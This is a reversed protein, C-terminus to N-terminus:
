RGKMEFCESLKYVKDEHVFVDREISINHLWVLYSTEGCVLRTVNPGSSVSNSCGAALLLIGFVGALIAKIIDAKM